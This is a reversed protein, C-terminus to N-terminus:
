FITEHEGPTVAKNSITGLVNVGKESTPSGSSRGLFAVLTVLAISFLRSAHECPGTHSWSSSLPSLVGPELESGAKPSRFDALLGEPLCRAWGSSPPGYCSRGAGGGGGSTARMRPLQSEMPGCGFSGGRDAPGTEAKATM